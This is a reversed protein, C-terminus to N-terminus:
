TTGFDTSTTGSGSSTTGASGDVRYWLFRRPPDSDGVYGRIVDSYQHLLKEAHKEPDSIVPYESRGGGRGSYKLTRTVHDLFINNKKDGM